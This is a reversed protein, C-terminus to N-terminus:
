LSPWHRGSHEISMRSSSWHREPCCPWAYKLYRHTLALRRSSFCGARLCSASGTSRSPLSVPHPLHSVVVGKPTGTSGSTFIIYAPHAPLLPQLRDANTLDADSHRNLVVAAPEDLVLRPLGAPLLGSVAATTVALVPRADALMMAVRDVPYEPDVPLYAGGAKLVALFSVLLDVSRPLAVAVVSEPGIGQGALWRALRNARANVQAYTYFHIGSVIAASDPTRRVQAEFLDPFVLGGSDPQATDNWDALLQRSERTM